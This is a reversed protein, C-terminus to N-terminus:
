AASIKPADALAPQGAPPTDSPHDRPLLIGAARRLVQNRVNADGPLTDFLRALMLADRSPQYGDDQAATNSQGSNMVTSSLNSDWQGRQGAGTYLWYANVNFAKAMKFLTDVEVGGGALIKTVSQFSVGFHKAAATRDWKRSPEAMLEKVRVSLDSM